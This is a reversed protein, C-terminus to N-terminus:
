LPVVEAFFYGNKAFHHPKNTKPALALTLALLWLDWGQTVVCTRYIKQNRSQKQTCQGSVPERKSEARGMKNPCQSMWLLEGEDTKVSKVFILSSPAHELVAGKRLPWAVVWKVAVFSGTSVSHRAGFTLSHSLM